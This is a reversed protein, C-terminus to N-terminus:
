LLLPCDPHVGGNTSAAQLAIRQEEPSGYHYTMADIRRACVHKSHDCKADAKGGYAVCTFILSDDPQRMYWDDYDRSLRRTLDPGMAEEWVVNIEDGFLETRHRVCYIYVMTALLFILAAVYLWGQGPVGPSSYGMVTM